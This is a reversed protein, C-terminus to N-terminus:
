PLLAPHNYSANALPSLSSSTKLPSSPASSFAYRSASSSASLKPPELPSFTGLLSPSALSLSSPLRQFPNHAHTQGLKINDTNPYAEQEPSPVITSYTM